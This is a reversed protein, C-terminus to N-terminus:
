RVGYEDGEIKLMKNLRDQNVMRGMGQGKFCEFEHKTNSQM